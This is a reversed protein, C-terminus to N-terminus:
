CEAGGALRMRLFDHGDNQRFLRIDDIRAFRGTRIDPTDDLLVDGFGQGLDIRGVAGDRWAQRRGPLLGAVQDPANGQALADLEVVARVEVRRGGLCGDFAGEIRLGVAFDPQFHEAVDLHRHLNHVVVGEIDRGLRQLRDQRGHEAGHGDGAGVHLRQLAVPIRDAGARVLEDAPDGALFHHQLTEVAIPAVLRLGFACSVDETRFRGYAGGHDLDTLGVDRGVDRQLVRGVRVHVEAVEVRLGRPKADVQGARRQVVDPDALRQVVGDVAIGQDTADEALVHDRHGIDDHPADVTVVRVEFHPRIIQRLGLRKEGFGLGVANVDVLFDQHEATEADIRVRGFSHFSHVGHQGLDAEVHLQLHDLDALPDVEKGLGIGLVATRNQLLALVVVVIAVRHKRHEEFIGAFARLRGRAVLLHVVADLRGAGGRSVLAALQPLFDETADM